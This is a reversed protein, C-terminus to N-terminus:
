DVKSMPFFGMMLQYVRDPSEDADIEARVDNLFEQFRDVIRDYTEKSISATVGGVHRFNGPIELSDAARGFGNVYYGKLAHAGFGHGSTIHRHSQELRGDESRVLLKLRLLKEIAARIEKAPTKGPLKAAIWGPDERFDPLAVLERLTLALPDNYYDFQDLGIRHLKRFPIARRLETLATSKERTDKAQGYRILSLFFEGEIRGLGLFDAVKKALEMSLNHDGDMVMKLHSNSSLGLQRALFRLSYKRDRKKLEAFRDKLYSRFDMYEYIDHKTQKM